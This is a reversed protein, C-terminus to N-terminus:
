YGKTEQGHGVLIGKKAKSNLKGHEDKPIHAYACGFVRLVKVRPKEGHWAEYPTKGDVARTPCQNRPCTATTVAEAWFTQPLKADLLMSFSSEVLTRNLREAVGNQEPTKPITCKHRIGESKLYAEFKKSTYEGGNDSQLTKLKAKETLKKWQLFQNFAQDKTKLPYVWSYRTREDTSSVFYETGGISKAGMKGCVDTHILELPERRHTKSAEFCSRHHKWGICAECFGINNTVNYDFHEVLENRALLQLNQESLHGYRQHWVREKNFGTEVNM